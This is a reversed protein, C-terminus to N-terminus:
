HNLHNKVSIGSSGGICICSLLVSFYSTVYVKSILIGDSIEGEFLAPNHPLSNNQHCLAPGLVTHDSYFLKTEGEKPWYNMWEM